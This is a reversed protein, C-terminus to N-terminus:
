SVDDKSRPSRYADLSQEIAIRCPECLVGGPGAPADGCKACQRQQAPM